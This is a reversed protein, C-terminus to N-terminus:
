VENNKGYDVDDYEHGSVRVCAGEGDIITNELVINDDGRLSIAGTEPDMQGRITNRYVVNGFSGEKIDVGESGQTDIENDAVTIRACVDVVNDGNKDDIQNLATGI